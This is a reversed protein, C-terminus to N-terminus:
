MLDMTNSEAESFEMVDMGEGTYRLFILFWIAIVLILIWWHLFARRKFMASFKIAISYPFFTWYLRVSLRLLGRSFKKSPLLTRSRLQQRLHSHAYPLDSTPLGFVCQLNVLPPSLYWLYLYTIPSGDVFPILWWSLVVNIYLLIKSLLSFPDRLKCTAFLFRYGADSISPRPTWSMSRGTPLCIDDPEDYIPGLCKSRSFIDKWSFHNSCYPLPQFTCWFHMGLTLLSNKFVYGHRPDCAVLLNKRDFLRFTVQLPKQSIVYIYPRRKLWSRCQTKRSLELPRATFHRM